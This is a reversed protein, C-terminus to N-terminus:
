TDEEEDEEMEDSDSDQDQGREIRLGEKKLEETKVAMVVYILQSGIAALLPSALIIFGWYIMQATEIGSVPVSHYYVVYIILFLETVLALRFSTRQTLKSPKIPGGFARISSTFLGGAFNLMMVLSCIIILTLADNQSFGFTKMFDELGGM